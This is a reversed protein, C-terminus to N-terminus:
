SVERLSRSDVFTHYQVRHPIKVVHVLVEEDGQLQVFGGNCVTNGLAALSLARAM